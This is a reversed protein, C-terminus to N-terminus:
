LGIWGGEGGGGLAVVACSHRCRSARSTRVALLLERVAGAREVIVLSAILTAAL